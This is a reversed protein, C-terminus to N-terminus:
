MEVGPYFLLADSPWFDKEESLVKIKQESKQQERALPLLNEQKKVYRSLILPLLDRLHTLTNEFPNCAAKGSGAVDM